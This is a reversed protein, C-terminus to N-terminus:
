YVHNEFSYCIQQLVSFEAFYRIDSIFDVEGAKLQGNVHLLSGVGVRKHYLQEACGRKLVAERAIEVHQNVTSGHLEAHASYKLLPYLEAHARYFTLQRELKVFLLLFQM